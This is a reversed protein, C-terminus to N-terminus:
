KAKSFEKNAFDLLLPFAPHRMDHGYGDLEYIEIDKHGNIKMMRHFYANEEYRGLMELDRDGTILLTPPADGRVYYLPALEDVVPKEGPIGRENRITFHTITHGSFPILGAIQNADLDYEKLYARNMVSMLALYGGASHGSVFINKPDGNYKDINRIIWAIAGAADRISTEANVLPSLRYGVGVVCYGNKTLQKPIEKEGGTLGGGHFRIIVPAKEGSDPYHIDLLCMEKQYDSSEDKLIEHYAIDQEETYNLEQANVWIPILILLCKFSLNM